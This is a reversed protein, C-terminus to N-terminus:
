ESETKMEDRVDYYTKEDNEHSQIFQYIEPAVDGNGIEKYFAILESHVDNIVAESQPNLYFFLAGGGVFPEIYRAYDKPIYKEFHKIEDGKGGFWKVLPFLHKVEAM